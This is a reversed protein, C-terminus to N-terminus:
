HATGGTGEPHPHPPRPRGASMSPKCGAQGGRSAKVGVQQVCRECRGKEKASVNQQGQVTSNPGAAHTTPTQMLLFVCLAYSSSNQGCILLPHAPCLNSHIYKTFCVHICELHSHCTPLVVTWLGRSCSSGFKTAEHVPMGLSRVYGPTSRSLMYLAPLSHCACPLALMPLITSQGKVNAQISHLLLGQDLSVALSM